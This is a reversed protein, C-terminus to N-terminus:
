SSLLRLVWKVGAAVVALGIAAAGWAILDGQLTQGISQIQNATM